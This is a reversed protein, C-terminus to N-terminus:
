NWIFMIVLFLTIVAPHHYLLFLKSNTIDFVLDFLRGHIHTSYQPHQFLNFNQILIDVRIISEPLMQDFNFDGVISIRRQTPLKNILLVSDDTTTGLPCPM